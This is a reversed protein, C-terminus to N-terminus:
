EIIRLIVRCHRKISRFFRPSLRPKEKPSVLVDRLTFAM